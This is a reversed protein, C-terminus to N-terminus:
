ATRITTRVSIMVTSSVGPVKKICIHTLNM